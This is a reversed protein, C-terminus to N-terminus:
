CIKCKLCDSKRLEGNLTKKRSWVESCRPCSMRVMVEIETVIRECNAFRTVGSCVLIHHFRDRGFEVV